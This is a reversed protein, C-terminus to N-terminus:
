AHAMSVQAQGQGQEQRSGQLCNVKFPGSGLIHPQGMMYAPSLSCAMGDLTMLVAFCLTDDVDVATSMLHQHVEPAFPVSWQRGERTGVKRGVLRSTWRGVRGSAWRGARGGAQGGEWKVM